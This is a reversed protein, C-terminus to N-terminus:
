IILCNSFFQGRTKSLISLLSTSYSFIWLFFKSYLTQEDSPSPLKLMIFLKTAMLFDDWMSLALPPYFWPTPLPSPQPPPLPPLFISVVTGSCCYFFTLFFFDDRSRSVEHEAFTNIMPAVSTPVLAPIYKRCPLQNRQTAASCISPPQYISTWAPAPAIAAQQECSKKGKIGERGEGAGM